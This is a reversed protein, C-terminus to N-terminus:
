PEPESLQDMEAEIRDRTAGLDNLVRAGIGDAEDDRAEIRM